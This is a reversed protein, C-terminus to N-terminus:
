STYEDEWLGWGNMNQKRLRGFSAYREPMIIQLGRQMDKCSYAAFYMRMFEAFDESNNTAGYTSPTYMDQAIASSWGSGSAWYGNCSDLVHGLEHILTSRMGGRDMKWNLRVYVDNGGGNFSNASDNRIKVTKLNTRYEYPIQIIAQLFINYNHKATDNDHVYVTLTQELNGDEDYIAVPYKVGSLQTGRWFDYTGEVGEGVETYCGVSGPLELSITEYSAQGSYVFGNTDNLFENLKALQEDYTLDGSLIETFMNDMRIRPTWDTYGGYRGFIDGAVSEYVSEIMFRQRDTLNNYAQTLSVQYLLSKEYLPEFTFEAKDTENRLVLNNGSDAKGIYLGNDIHKIYYSLNNKSYNESKELIWHQSNDNVAYASSLINENVGGPVTMRNNSSRCVFSHSGDGMNRMLFMASEDKVYTYDGTLKGSNGRVYKGDVKIGYYFGELGDYVYIPDLVMKDPDTIVEMNKGLFAFNSYCGNKLTTNRGNSVLAITDLKAGNTRAHMTESTYRNKGDTIIVKYTNEDINGKFVIEYTKGVEAECLNVASAAYSGDGNGDRVAFNNGNFLLTASSTGYHLVGNDGDGLLIANDGKAWLTINIKIMYEGTVADFVRYGVVETVRNPQQNDSFIADDKIGDSTIRSTIVEKPKISDKEWVFVRASEGKASDLPLELIDSEAIGTKVNTLMDDDYVGVAVMDGDEVNTVKANLSGGDLVYKDWVVEAAMASLSSLILVATLLISIVKKM